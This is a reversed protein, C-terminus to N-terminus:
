PTAEGEAESAPRAKKNHSVLAELLIVDTDVSEKARLKSKGAPKPAPKQPAALTHLLSKHEEQRTAAIGTDPRSAPSPASSAVAPVM